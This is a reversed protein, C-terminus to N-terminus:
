ADPDIEEAAAPTRLPEVARAYDRETVGAEDLARRIAADREDPPLDEWPTRGRHNKKALATVTKRVIAAAGEFAELVNPRTRRAPKDPDLTVLEEWTPNHTALTYLNRDDTSPFPFRTDVAAANPDDDTTARLWPTRAGRQPGLPCTECERYRGSEFIAVCSWPPM